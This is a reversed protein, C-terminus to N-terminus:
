RFGCVRELLRLRDSPLPRADCSKQTHHSPSEEQTRVPLLRFVGVLRKPGGLPSATRHWTRQTAGGLRRPPVSEVHPKALSTLQQTVAEELAAVKEGASAALSEVTSAERRAELLEEIASAEPLPLSPM